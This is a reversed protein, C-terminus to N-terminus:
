KNGNEIEVRYVVKRNTRVRYWRAYLGKAKAESVLDMAVRESTTTTTTTRM